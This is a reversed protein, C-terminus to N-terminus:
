RLIGQCRRRTLAVTLQPAVTQLSTVCITQPSDTSHWSAARGPLDHLCERDLGDLQAFTLQDSRSM